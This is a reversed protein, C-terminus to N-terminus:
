RCYPGNKQSATDFHMHNRHYRDSDPGLTTGFTGCAARYAKLMPKGAPDRWDDLVSVSTGNELVIASIDIAKGRGHESIPAGKVNNRTRCAYHAAVQLEVVESRGFAPKLGGRVWTNLARATDCDLTAAVSLRVGDVSTVSVPDKIGCGRVRSTIPALTTGKIGNVGCVSGKRGFVSAKGPLVRVAAAPQAQEQTEPAAEPRPAPRRKAFLGAPPKPSAVFAAQVVETPLYPTPTADPRPMPRLTSDPALASVVPAGQPPAAAGPMGIGPRPMPRLSADPAEALAPAALALVILSLGWARRM